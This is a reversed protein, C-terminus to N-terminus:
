IKLNLNSLSSAPHSKAYWVIFSVIAGALFGAGGVAVFAVGWFPILPDIEIIGKQSRNTFNNNRTGIYNYTGTSSMRILGGNFYASGSNLVNCNQVVQNANGGAATIASLQTSTYCCNADSAVACYTTPQGVHAFSEALTGWPNAQSGTGTLPAPYNRRGDNSRLVVMNSRDTEPTGQGAVNPDNTDCGTWQFHIYDGTGVKLHTPTFDYEVAPYCQVINGRRGRVGLNFIRGTVGTPRATIHFMHTRDQFTRGFQTTDMALTYNFNGVIVTPNNHVPSNGDNYSYDIMPYSYDIHGWGLYDSSSINYRIRLVCLNDPDPLTPVIWEYQPTFANITNGLHDDRTWISAICEPAPINWPLTSLWQSGKTSCDAQNNYQPNNCYNKQLVNQSQAQFFSCRNGNPASSLIVIDKWPSPHWYPYYDREESCEFGSRGGGNNQRTQTAQGGGQPLDGLSVRDATFLGLNRTRQSCNFYYDYPEHMGYLYDGNANQDNMTSDTTIEQDVTGDRIWTGCMYQLIVDCDVNNHNVGCGHQNTWEVQLQSGMYYTMPPGWCYGGAANDQTDMLRNQTQTNRSATNLKNNSGRPAHMYMDGLVQSILILTFSVVIIGKM